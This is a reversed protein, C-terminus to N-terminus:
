ALIYVVHVVGVEEILYFIFILVLAIGHEKHLGHNRVMAYWLFGIVLVMYMMTGALPITDVFGPSVISLLGLVLTMNVVTSGFIDGMALAYEGRKVANIELTLEPLGTGIAVVTAGLTEIPIGLATGIQISSNVTIRAGIMVLALSGLLKLVTGYPGYLVPEEEVGEQAEEKEEKVIKSMLGGRKIIWISVGYMVLLIGGHWVTLSSTVLILASVATILGLIKLMVTEHKRDIALKGAVITTIGLVLSINVLSSGLINGASLGASDEIVAFITTTIEPLNTSVSLVIFGVTFSSIGILDTIQISYRVSKDGAWWLLALGAVLLVVTSTISAM